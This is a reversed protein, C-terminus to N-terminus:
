LKNPWQSKKTKTLFFPVIKDSDVEEQEGQVQTVFVTITHRNKESEPTQGKQKPGTNM